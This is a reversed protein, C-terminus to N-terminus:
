KTPATLKQLIDESIEPTEGAPATLSQLKEELTKEESVPPQEVTKKFILVYVVGGIILASIILIPIIIRKFM